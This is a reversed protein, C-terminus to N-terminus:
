LPTLLTRPSIELALSLGVLERLTINDASGQIISTVRDEAITSAIGIDSISLGRKQTEYKIRSVLSRQVKAKGGKQYALMM